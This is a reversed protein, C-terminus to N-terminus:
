KLPELAETKVWAVIGGHQVKSWNPFLTGGSGLRLVPTGESVFHVSIPSLPFARLGFGWKAKMPTPTIKVVEAAPLNPTISGLARNVADNRMWVGKRARVSNTKDDLRYRKIGYDKGRAEVTSNYGQLYMGVHHATGDSRLLVFYDGAQSPGAIRHGTQRFVEATPRGSVKIGAARLAAIRLGSCDWEPDGDHNPDNGLAGWIYDRSADPNKPGSAAILYANFVDAKSM